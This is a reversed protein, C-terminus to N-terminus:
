RRKWVGAEFRQDVHTSTRELWDVGDLWRGVDRGSRPYNTTGTYHVCVLAGGPELWRRLGDAAIQAGRVNLYYAVESWVVLDGTGPPWFTPYEARRVDVGGVDALRRRAREVVDDVFDFAVLEDCRSALLETLAGNACGPELARRYRADPLMAVTLQYKRQEYWSTEFGWPDDDSEYMSEFYNRDTGLRGISPHGGSGTV